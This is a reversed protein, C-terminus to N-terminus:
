IWPFDSIGVIRINSGIITTPIAKVGYNKMKTKIYGTM